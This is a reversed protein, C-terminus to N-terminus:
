ADLDQGIAIDYGDPDQVGFERCGYPKNGIEYDIKAGREKADAYAADADDVWLYLNWMQHVVKWHPTVHEPGPALALMLSFGDRHLICFGPPDGWFREYTFGLCDRYWHASAQVDTVLLIPAAGTLRHNM